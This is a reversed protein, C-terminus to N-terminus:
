GLFPQRKNKPTYKRIVLRDGLGVEQDANRIMNAIPKDPTFYYIRSYMGGAENYSRLIRKWDSPSKPTLELEVAFHNPSGDANRPRTVVLDPVHEGTKGGTGYVVFLGENGEELEPAEHDLIALEVLDRMDQSSKGGRYRKQGQRIEREAVTMEGFTLESADADEGYLRIGGPWRNKVPFAEGFKESLGLVDKGDFAERELEAAINVLGITHRITAFSISKKNETFALGALEIGAKRAQWLTSGAAIVQRKVLDYEELTRLRTSITQPTSNLVRAIADVYSFQYKTLFRLLTIDREQIQFARRTNTVNKKGPKKKEKKFDEVGGVDILAGPKKWGPLRNPDEVRENKFDFRSNVPRKRPPGVPEVADPVEAPQEKVPDAFLPNVPRAGPKKVRPSPVVVPLVDDMSDHVDMFADSDADGVGVNLDLVDGSHQEEPLSVVSVEDEAAAPVAPPVVVSPVTVPVPPVSVLGQEVLEDEDENGDEGEEEPEDSSLAFRSVRPVAVAPPEVVVPAPEEVSPVVPPISNVVPPLVADERDDVGVDLSLDDDEALDPEALTFRSSPRRVAPPTSSVTPFVPADVPKQDSRGADVAPVRAPSVVGAEDGNVTPLASKGTPAVGNDPSPVTPPVVPPTSNVTPASVPIFPQERDDVGVDLSLDDGEVDAFMSNPSVRKVAPVVPVEGAEQQDLSRPAPRQVRVPTSKKPPFESTPNGAPRAGLSFRPNVQRAQDNSDNMM